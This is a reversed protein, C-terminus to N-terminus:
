YKNYSKVEVINSGSLKNISLKISARKDNLIYVNRALKIFKENFSNDRECQRKGDEIDWLRLNIKKLKVMERKIKTNLIKKSKITDILLKYENNLIILKDRQKIKIKKIELITIKDALEGVSVPIKILM